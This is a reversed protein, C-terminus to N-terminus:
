SYYQKRVQAMEETLVEEDTYVNLNTLMILTSFKSERALYFTM